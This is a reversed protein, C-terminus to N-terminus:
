DGPRLTQQVRQILRERQVPSWLRDALAFAIVIPLYTELASAQATVSVGALRAYHSQLAANLARRRGPDAAAPVLETQLLHFRALDFAAPARITCVWDIIRPGESTMIVNEAHLDGHCMGAAPPLREILIAAGAAIQEPMLSPPQSFTALWDRLTPAGPPPPAKHVAFYLNALIAGAQEPTVERTRVLHLLTPGELRPLVIGFRGELTVEGLVEPAPVGAASVDRTMQAEHRAFRAPVSAKFLKLVQGPAWAHIDASAGEGIKEGLVGRM